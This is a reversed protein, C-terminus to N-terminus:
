TADKNDEQEWKQLLDRIAQETADQIIKGRKVCALKLETHLEDSILLTKM